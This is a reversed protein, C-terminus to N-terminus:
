LYLELELLISYIIDIDSKRKIGTILVKGTFHCTFHMGQRRFMVAPFLEPEYSFDMQLRELDLRESLQHVASATVLKIKQLKIAYGMRQLLRAYRRLREKGARVSSCKGNCNINGNAFLLCNGGIMRHQWILGNFNRPDYRVNTIERAIQSLDFRCGLCAQVVVNTLHM